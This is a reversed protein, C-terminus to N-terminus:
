DYKEFCKNLRAQKSEELKDTLMKLKYSADDLADRKSKIKAENSKIIFAEKLWSNCLRTYSTKASKIQKKLEKEEDFSLIM